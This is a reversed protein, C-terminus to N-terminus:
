RSGALAETELPSMHAVRRLEVGLLVLLVGLLIAYAGIWFLVALAGAGPFAALFVGFAASLVGSVVLLWEGRIEKRLRIAAVIELVGTAIAWAAIVYLLSIATLRPRAFAFLGALVSVIGCLLLAWPRPGPAKERLAAVVDFVGAVVAYVGFMMVLTFVAMEPLLLALVGFLLTLAGRLVFAWWSRVALVTPMCVGKCRATRRGAAAVHVTRPPGAERAM